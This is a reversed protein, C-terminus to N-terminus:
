CDFSRCFEFPHPRQSLPRIDDQWKYEIWRKLMSESFVDGRLLFDSDRRLAELAQELSAPLTPVGKMQEPALDYIDKDLPEGPHIKNQVGDIVAMLIASFALYPNASGDPCRFEIRKASPHNSYMPIRVAASRNRQSYALLVPAEYGPVLRKYSNTSPCTLALLAPAHKILGGIAYMGIESLGAYGRGAMLSQGGKWLSIHTHMGSGNENFIPKPMFSACKGHRKAINKVVYKYLMVNDASTVLEDYRFDIESQGCCAVEHHHCEVELGAEMLTVMIENRLDMLQDSPPCPLYGEKVRLKHALNPNENRGRNWEAENSDLFYFGHSASQDFRADDFVFFECEPGLFAQDAIGSGSLYNIARKAVCRPDLDYETRTIPDQIACIINMTPISAFPDLFATDAQPVMLMDSEHISQWGRVSSGDFGFGEEFSDAKLHAMPITTHRWQGFLDTFRLDIAKVEKERCLVLVDRPTM